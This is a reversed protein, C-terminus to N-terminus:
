PFPAPTIPIAQGTVDDGGVNCWDGRRRGVFVGDGGQLLRSHHVILKIWLTENQCAMVDDITSVPPKRAGEDRGRSTRRAAMLIVHDSLDHRSRLSRKSRDPFLYNLEKLVSTSQNAGSLRPKM